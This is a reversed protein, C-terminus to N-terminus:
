VSFVNKRSIKKLKLFIENKENKLDVAWKIKKSSM